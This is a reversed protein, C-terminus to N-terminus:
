RVIARYSIRGQPIRRADIRIDTVQQPTVIRGNIRLSGLRGWNRGNDPSIEVADSSSGQFSLQQPISSRIFYRKEAPAIRWDILLVVNDGRSLPTDPNAQALTRGSETINEVFLSRSIQPNSNAQAACAFTLLCLGLIRKTKM